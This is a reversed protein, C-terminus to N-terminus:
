GKSQPINGLCAEIVVCKQNWFTFALEQKTYLEYDFPVGELVSNKYKLPSSLLVEAYGIATLENKLNGALINCFEGVCDMVAEESDSDKLLRGFAHLLKEAVEEKIILVFTGVAYGSDLDKQSSYFNVCSVYAPSNFKEMPFVRMRSDFEIIDKEGVVPEASPKVRLMKSFADNVVGIIRATLVEKDFEKGM